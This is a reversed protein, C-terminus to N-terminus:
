EAAETRRSMLLDNLDSGVDSRIVSTRRSAHRWRQRGMRVARESADGPEGHIYLKKVGDILPFFSIAGVSGLAWAPTTIGLERAAMASELGEVILLEDGAPALKIAARHVIGMMRRQTKPWLEPRDVRIRHVATITDDDVSRFCAILCPIFLTHGTDEDRWPTRPHYRLVTGALDDFLTLSRSKLYEEAATGRPDTASDWLHKARAIRELDDETRARPKEAEADMAAFDWKIALSPDITRRKEPHDGPQWDPL